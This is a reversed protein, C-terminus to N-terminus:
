AIPESWAARSLASPRGPTRASWTAAMRAPVPPRWRKTKQHPFVLQRTLTNERAPDPHAATLPTKPARPLRPAEPLLRAPPMAVPSRALVPSTHDALASVAALGARDYRQCGVDMSSRSISSRATAIQGPTRLAHSAESQLAHVHRDSM